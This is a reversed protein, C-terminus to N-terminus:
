IYCICFGFAFLQIHSYSCVTRFLVMCRNFLIWPHLSRHQVTPSFTVRILGGHLICLHAWFHTKSIWTISQLYQGLIPQDKVIYHEKLNLTPIIKSRSFSWYQGKPFIHQCKNFVWTDAPCVNLVEHRSYCQRKLCNPLDFSHKWEICPYWGYYHDTIRETRGNM